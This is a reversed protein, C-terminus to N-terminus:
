NCDAEICGLALATFNARAGDRTCRDGLNSVGGTEFASALAGNGCGRADGGAVFHAFASHRNSPVRTENM